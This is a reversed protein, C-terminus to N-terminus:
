YYTSRLTPHKTKIVKPGVRLQGKGTAAIKTLPDCFFYAGDEVILQGAITVKTHRLIELSGGKKVTLRSTPGIYLEPVKGPSENIVLANGDGVVVEAADRTRAPSRGIELGGLVLYYSNRALFQLSGPARLVATGTAGGNGLMFDTRHRSTRHPGDQFVTTGSFVAGLIKDYSGQPPQAYDYLFSCSRFHFLSATDMAAPIAHILYNHTGVFRCETFSMRTAHSDSHLTFPGYAAQGRYPRDEFTCGVFRTADAATAAHCGHVFAGYIRCNRFLFGKQTIWASWNTIGWLLGGSVVINKTGSPHSEDVWDSVIAQGANDVFRCNELSVNTVFGDQPEVDVGAGPNSFLPKGTSAPVIRGTHSFSCNVARFGNVGTLSLGQRGNYNCTSNELVIGERNPDDISKALHNLVQIGDRGFHHLALQSLKINRSDSVFIGDAPLQIGTDGWHGGVVLSSSSGNLNLNRISINDCGQLVVCTGGTASYNHDVFYASPAEYPKRSVPDFSGYRLGQAYRIETTASDDGVVTLNRCGVLRLLDAGKGASDQRGVLYVGKPIRLEASGTAGAPTQARGNFFAAAKEFAAQDNTKGDGVAGFDKKLDKRLVPPTALGFAAPSGALLGALCAVRLCWLAWNKQKALYIMRGASTDPLETPPFM